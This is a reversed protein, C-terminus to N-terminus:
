YSIKLPLTRAYEIWRGITKESPPVRVLKRQRNAEQMARALNVPNRYTLERVTDVGAAELLGAYDEGIGKIRVRDAMNACRLICREDLGTRAALEQRDKPSKAAELLRSTTRIGIAKLRAVVQSDIGDLDAIPYSM